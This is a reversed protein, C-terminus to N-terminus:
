INYADIYNCNSQLGYVIFIFIFNYIINFHINILKIIHFYTMDTGKLCGNTNM